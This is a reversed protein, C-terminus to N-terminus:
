GPLEVTFVTKGNESEAWIRGGHLAVIEKAIALGLGAGGTKTERSDDLRCFKEFITDLKQKPITKGTNEISVRVGEPNEEARVIIATDELSYAAANKLINQFVRALKVPDGNVQIDEAMQLEVTNGRESLIPYFEDAMQMLMYSLDVSEKEVM